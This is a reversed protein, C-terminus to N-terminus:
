AQVHLTGHGVYSSFLLDPMGPRHCQADAHNTTEQPLADSCEDPVAVGGDRFTPSVRRCADSFFAESDSRPSDAHHKGLCTDLRQPPIM